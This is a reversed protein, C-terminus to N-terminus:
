SSNESKHRTKWPPLWISSSKANWKLGLTMSGSFPYEEPSACLDKRVPNMWIYAAVSAIHEPNRLIHEYFNRQWLSYSGAPALTQHQLPRDFKDARVSAYESTTRQKFRRVFSFLDSTEATGQVLAHLHDSMLCWAHLLFNCRAADHKLRDIIGFALRSDRFVPRRNASCITIFYIQAGLYSDPSLHFHKRAQVARIIVCLSFVRRGAPCASPGIFAM